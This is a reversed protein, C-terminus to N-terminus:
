PETSKYVPVSATLFIMQIRKSDILWGGIDMCYGYFSRINGAIRQSNTGTHLNSGFADSRPSKHSPENRKPKRHLKGCKRRVGRSPPKPYTRQSCGRSINGRRKCHKPHSRFPFKGSISVSIQPFHQPSFRYYPTQLHNYNFSNRFYVISM